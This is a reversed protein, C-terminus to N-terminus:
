RSILPTFTRCLLQNDETSTHTSQADDFFEGFGPAFTRWQWCWALPYAAGGNWRTRFNWSKEQWGNHPEVPLSGGAL